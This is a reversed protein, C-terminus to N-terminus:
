YEIVRGRLLEPDTIEQRKSPIKGDFARWEQTWKQVADFDRCRKVSWGPTERLGSEFVIRRDTNTNANGMISQRLYDLCHRTHHPKMHSHRTGNWDDYIAHRLAMQLNHACEIKIKM